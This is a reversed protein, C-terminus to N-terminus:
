WTAYQMCRDLPTVTSQSYSSCWKVCIKSHLLLGSSVRGKLGTNGKVLASLFSAEARRSEMHLNVGATVREAM